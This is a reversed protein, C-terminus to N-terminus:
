TVWSRRRERRVRRSKHKSIHEVFQEGYKVIQQEGRRGNVREGRYESLKIVALPQVELTTPMYICLRLIYWMHATTQEYKSKLERNKRVKYRPEFVPELLTLHPVVLVLTFLSVTSWSMQNTSEMRKVRRLRPSFFVCFLFLCFFGVVFVFCFTIYSHARRSRDLTAPASGLLHDLKHYNTPRALFIPQTSESFSILV